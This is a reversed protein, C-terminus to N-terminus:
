FPILIHCMTIASDYTELRVLGLSRPVTYMNEKGQSCRARYLAEDHYETKMVAYGLARPELLIICSKAGRPALGFTAIPERRDRSICEQYKLFNGTSQPGASVDSCLQIFINGCHAIM